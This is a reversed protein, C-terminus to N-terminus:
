STRLGALFSTLLHQGQPWRGLNSDSNLHGHCGTTILPIDWDTALRTAADITCYPDNDSVILLGPVPLAAARLNTFTPLLDVPFTPALPDPPAVLFAGRVTPSGATSLWQAVAHCGLSHAVLVVPEDTLAVADSIAAIWDDRDPHTWSTPTIRTANPLWSSEWASQWHHHDSDDLGPVIIFRM